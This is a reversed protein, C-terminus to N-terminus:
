CYHLECKAVEFHNEKFKNDLYIFRYGDEAKFKICQELHVPNNVHYTAIVPIHLSCADRILEVESQQVIEDFILYRNVTNNICANELKQLLTTKGVNMRGCIFVPRGKQVDDAVLSIVDSLYM